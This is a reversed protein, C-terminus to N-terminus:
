GLLKTCKIEVMVRSVAISGSPCIDSGLMSAREGHPKRSRSFLSARMADLEDNEPKKPVRGQRVHKASRRTSVPQAVNRSKSVPRRNRPRRAGVARRGTVFLAVAILTVVALATALPARGWVRTTWGFTLRLVATTDLLLGAVFALVAFVL